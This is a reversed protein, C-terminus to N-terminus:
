TYRVYFRRGIADESNLTRLDDDGSKMAKRLALACKKSDDTWSYM